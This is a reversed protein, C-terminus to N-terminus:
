DGDVSSFKSTVGLVSTLEVKLVRELKKVATAAADFAAPNRKAAEELPAGLSSVATNADAFASRLARDVPPSQAAVLRCLGHGAALYLEESARLYTLAIQQSMGGRGGEIEAPKVEGNKALRAIRALRNESVHEVTYVLQAVLRNVSVQGGDAFKEAYAKGDGLSRVVAAACLSVNGALARALRVRREGAVGAFRAATQEDPEGCFLLYELAFLGRRDVGMADISANDLAQSGQLLADIGASRPPWFLARMLSNSESIPGARFADARKWSSLARQWAQRASQLTAVTPEALVAVELELQQSDRAVAATNPVMVREILTRLVTVKPDPKRCAPLASLAGGLLAQLVSRRQM